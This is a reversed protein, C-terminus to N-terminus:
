ALDGSGRFCGVPFALAAYEGQITRGSARKQHMQPHQEGEKQHTGTRIGQSLDLKCKGTFSGKEADVAYFADESMRPHEPKSPTCSATRHM